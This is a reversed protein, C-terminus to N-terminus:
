REGREREREMKEGKWCFFCFCDGAELSVLAPEVDAEDCVVGPYPEEVAM